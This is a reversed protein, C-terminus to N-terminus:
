EALKRDQRRVWPMRTMASSTCVPNPGPRVCTEHPRSPRSGSKSTIAFDSAAPKGRAATIPCDWSISPGTSPPSPPVETPSGTAQRCGVSHQVPEMPHSQIAAVGYTLMNPVPGEQSRSEFTTPSTRRRPAIDADFQDPVPAGALRRGALGVFDHLQGALVAHQEDRGARESVDDSKEGRSVIVSSSSSSPSSTM